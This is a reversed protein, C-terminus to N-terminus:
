PLIDPSIMWQINWLGKEDNELCLITGTKFIVMEREIELHLLQYTLRSLHPLHGVLMIDTKVPELRNKWISPDAFPDLDETITIGKTTHLYNDLIAATQQARMKGSHRIQDLQLHLNMEAYRAVKKMCEVGNETLPRAPDEEKSKAEGHRVLYLKM